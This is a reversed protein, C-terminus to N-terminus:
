GVKSGSSIASEPSLIFLEKDNKAALLMGRSELGRIKAPKLNTVVVISKGVLTEPAYHQAIGAVIQRTEAGIEVDLRLLKDAKEVREAKLVKAVRLDIKAFDAIDILTPAHNMVGAQVSNASDNKAVDIRPFVNLKEEKMMFKGEIWKKSLGESRTDAKEVRKAKLVKTVRLDIKAFDTM